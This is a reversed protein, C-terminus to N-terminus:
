RQRTPLLVTALGKSTKEGLQNETWIECDVLHDNDKDIYKKIVKGKCWTTDGFINPRRLEVNLRKLFGDDGIWNTMLHGLWSIRQLGVDYEAPMGVELAMHKQQHGRAPHDQAGTIPDKYADAPHQWRYRVAIEHARYITGAGAYYVIMDTVCLPGKVVPPELPEGVETDEGYRPNNGRIQENAIADEIAELEENTYRYTERPKYKLGGEAKARGIRMTKGLARAVLEGRQNFYQIEGEQLIMRAAHQGKLEYADVLKVVVKFSDNVLIPRYFEWDTGAYIWQIGRLKPAVITSDVSYLFCGPAITCGYKTKKGYEKDCFLPNDDGISYAFHRIADHNAVENWQHGERNLEVGILSRAEDLSNDTVTPTQTSVEYAYRSM